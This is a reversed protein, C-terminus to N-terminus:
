CQGRLEGGKWVDFGLDDILPGAWQQEALGVANSTTGHLHELSEAEALTHQLLRMPDILRCEPLRVIGAFILDRAMASYLIDFVPERLKRVDDQVLRAPMIEVEFHHAIRRVPQLRM